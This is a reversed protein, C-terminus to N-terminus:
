QVVLDVRHGARDGHRRRQDAGARWPGQQGLRRLVAGPRPDPRRRPQRRRHLQHRLVLRRRRPQVLRPGAPRPPRLLDDDLHLDVPRQAHRHRQGPPQLTRLRHRLGARRLHRDLEGPDDRGARPLERDRHAATIRDPRPVPRQARCQGRGAPHDHDGPQGLGELGPVRRRHVVLDDRHGAGHGHRRRQAAGARRPGQQGLRRLVARPRAGPRRRPQRRRHLQHRLVLRRRRPEVLRPGAPRPPRLLDDDLHLDVPRQAHRHRRRPPQVPGSVIDYGQAGYTGIWSGKTTADSGVFAATAPADGIAFLTANNISYVTGDPGILTPTYAEGVGSTLTIKQTFTNTALDWRYLNGDESNALISDTAPDVAASNICWERVANPYTGDYEPDPTPGAITLVEQMVSAGTVPDDMTANPDLIAIKNVGDGGVGAYNNYKTM